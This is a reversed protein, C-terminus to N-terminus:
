LGLITLVATYALIAAVLLSAVALARLATTYHSDDVFSAFPGRRKADYKASVRQALSQIANPALLGAIGLGAFVLAGVLGIIPHSEPM